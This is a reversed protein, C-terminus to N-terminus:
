IVSSNPFSSLSLTFSNATDDDVGDDPEEDVGDGAVADVSGASEATDEWDDDAAWDESEVWDEDM